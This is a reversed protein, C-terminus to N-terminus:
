DLQGGQKMKFHGGHKLRFYGGRKVAFQGETKRNNSTLSGTMQNLNKIM